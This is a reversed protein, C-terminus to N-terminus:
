ASPRQFQQKFKKFLETADFDATRGLRKEHVYVGGSAIDSFSIIVEPTYPCGMVALRLADDEVSWGVDSIRRIELKM